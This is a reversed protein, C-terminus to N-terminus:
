KGALLPPCKYSRSLASIRYRVKELFREVSLSVFSPCETMLRVRPMGGKGM